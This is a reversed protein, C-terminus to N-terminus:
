SKLETKSTVIELSVNGGYDLLALDVMHGPPHCSFLSVVAKFAEPLFFFSAMKAMGM